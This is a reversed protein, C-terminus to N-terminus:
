RYGCAKSQLKAIERSLPTPNIEQDIMYMVYSRISIARKDCKWKNKGGLSTM